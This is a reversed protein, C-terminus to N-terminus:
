PWPCFRVISRLLEFLLLEVLLTSKFSPRVELTLEDQSLFSLCRTKSKCLLEVTVQDFVPRVQTASREAAINCPNLLLVIPLRKWPLRGLPDFRENPGMHRHPQCRFGSDQFVANEATWFTSLFQAIKSQQKQAVFSCCQNETVFFHPIIFQRCFRGALIMWWVSSRRSDQFIM